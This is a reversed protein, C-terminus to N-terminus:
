RYTGGKRWVDVFSIFLAQNSRIYDHEIGLQGIKGLGEPVAVLTYLPESVGEELGMYVWVLSPRFHDTGSDLPQFPEEQFVVQCVGTSVSHM